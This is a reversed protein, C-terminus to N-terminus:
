AFEGARYPPFYNTSSLGRAKVIESYRKQNFIKGCFYATRIGTSWGRKFMSLGDAGRHAVGAGAGLDLWRVKGGLNAFYEIAREQLAYSARLNYGAQSFATLHSYGVDGQLYYLVAGVTDDQHIARFVVIGPVSLQRSFATRSFAKIGKLGHRRILTTYLGVWEDVFQTPDLCREVRIRRLSKLAYYRHHSSVIENIPKQLDVIFHEKFPIVIDFSRQIDVPDFNGFPDTVLSLAVLDNKLGQLDSHLQSWDRCTFLPYCGMGDHDLLGPIQRKLIWGGSRPLFRPAGFEALSQAYGDHV